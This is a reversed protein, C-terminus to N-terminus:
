NAGFRPPYHSFGPLGASQTKLERAGVQNKLVGIGTAELEIVDGPQIWRDLEIGCGGGVTGTGIFEGPVTDEGYSAWALVEEFSYSQDVASGQAWKEGNIRATVQLDDLDVEDYTLVAPGIVNAFNKGKAPGVQASMEFSQIDRASVDNFITIGAIYSPADAVSIDRGARSVFFGLELEFDLQDSYAPWPIDDGPGLIAEHNGNYSIPFQQLPAPPEIGFSRRYHELHTLFDRMRRPRPVPSLLRVDDRGTLIPRGNGGVLEAGEALAADVLAAGNDLGRSGTEFFAIMSQFDASPMQPRLVSRAAELDVVTDKSVAGLCQTDDRM